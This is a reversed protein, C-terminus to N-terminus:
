EPRELDCSFWYDESDIDGSQGPVCLYGDFGTSLRHAVSLDNELAPDVSDDATLVAGDIWIGSDVVKSRYLTAFGTRYLSGDLAQYTQEYLTGWPRDEVRPPPGARLLRMGTRGFYRRWGASMQAIPDASTAPLAEPPVWEVRVEVRGRTFTVSGPEQPVTQFGPVHAVQFEGMAIPPSPVYSRYGACLGHEFDLLASSAGTLFAMLRMGPAGHRAIDFWFTQSYEREGVQVFHEVSALVPAIQTPDGTVGVFYMGALCDAELERQLSQEPNVTLVQVHHGWEHALVAEAAFPSIRASLGQLADVDYSIVRDDNCYYAIDLIAAAGCVTPPSEGGAHPAVTPPQYQYGAASVITNWYSDLSTSVSTLREVLTADPAVGRVPSTPRIPVVVLVLAVFM